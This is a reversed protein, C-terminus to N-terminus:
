IKKSNVARQMNKTYTCGDHIDNYMMYIYIIYIYM